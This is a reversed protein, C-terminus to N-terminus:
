PERRRARARRMAAIGGAVVDRLRDTLCPGTGAPKEVPMAAALAQALAANPRAARPKKRRLVWLLGVLPALAAVALLAMTLGTNDAATLDLTPAPGAARAKPADPSGPAVVLTGPPVLAADLPPSAAPNAANVPLNNSTGGTPTAVSREAALSAVTPDVKAPPGQLTQGGDTYGTELVVTSSQAGAVGVVLLLLLGTGALGKFILSASKM